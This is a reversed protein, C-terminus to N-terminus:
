KQVGLHGGSHVVSPFLSSRGRFTDHARLWSGFQPEILPEANPGASCGDEGHMIWGCQFCFRPLKEYKFNLWVMKDHVM